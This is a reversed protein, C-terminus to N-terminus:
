LAQGATPPSPDARAVEDMPRSAVGGVVRTSQELPRLLKHQLLRDRTRADIAAGKAVLKIGTGSVIDETAEVGRTEGAEVLRNLYHENVALKESM